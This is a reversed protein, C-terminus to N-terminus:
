NCSWWELWRCLRKFSTPHDFKGREHDSRCQESGPNRGPCLVSWSLMIFEHLKIIMLSPYTIISISNSGKRYNWDVYYDDIGDDYTYLIILLDLRHQFDIYNGIKTLIKVSAKCPYFNNDPSDRLKVLAIAKVSCWWWGHNQIFNQIHQHRMPNIHHNIFHLKRVNHKWVIEHVRPNAEIECDFYVDDGEQLFIKSWM